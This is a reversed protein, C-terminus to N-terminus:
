PNGLGTRQVGTARLLNDIVFYTIAYASLIIAVGIVAAIMIDKAKKIKEENGAATMWLFGAYLVLVLFIVGLFGLIVQVIRAITRAFTAGTVDEDPAYVQRVPELQTRMDVEVGTTAQSVLPTLAFYALNTLIALSLLTLYFKKM